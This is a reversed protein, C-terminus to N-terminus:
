EFTRDIDVFGDFDKDRQFRKMYKGGVITIWLDIKKDFNSDIEQFVMNGNGDFYSFDDAFGDFNSDLVEVIRRYRDANIRTAIEPVKDKNNDIIVWPLEYKKMEWVKEQSVFRINPIEPAKKDQAAYRKTTVAFLQAATLLLMAALSVLFVAPVRTKKISM